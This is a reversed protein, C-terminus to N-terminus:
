ERSCLPEKRAGVQATIRTDDGIRRQETIKLECRDALATWSPTEVLGKTRSGMIHPAQYIVLEDVLGKELLSGALTPGAEVLLENIGRGALVDLVESLDVRGDPKRCGLVEAGADVLAEPANDSAHCILTTGPLALMKAAPPTRLQTDVVVRM